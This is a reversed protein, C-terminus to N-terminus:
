RCKKHSLHKPVPNSLVSAFVSRLQRSCRPLDIEQFQNPQTKPEDVASFLATIIQNDSLINMSSGNRLFALFPSLRPEGDRSIKPMATSARHKQGKVNSIANVTTVGYHETCM